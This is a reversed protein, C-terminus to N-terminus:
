RDLDAAPRLSEAVAAQRGLAHAGLAIARLQLTELPHQAFETEV